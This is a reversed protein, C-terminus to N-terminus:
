DQTSAGGDVLAATVCLDDGDDATWGLDGLPFCPLAFGATRAAADPVAGRTLAALTLADSPAVAALLQRGDDDARQGPDVAFVWPGANGEAIMHEVDDPSARVVRYVLEAEGEAPVSTRRVVLAFEDDGSGTPLGTEVLVTSGSLRHATMTGPVQVGDPVSGGEAHLTAHAAPASGALPAAVFSTTGPHVLVLGAVACAGITATITARRQRVHRKTRRLTREVDVPVEPVAAAATRLHAVLADDAPTGDAPPALSTTRGHPPTRTM